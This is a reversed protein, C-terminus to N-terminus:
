APVERSVPAPPLIRRGQTRLEGEQELLNLTRRVRQLLVRHNSRNISTPFCIDVLDQDSMEPYDHPDQSRLWVHGGKRGRRPVPYHTQGPSHWIYSLNILGRWAPASRNGWFRLRDSVQPGNQSGQPLDVVVRLTDDLRQPGRPIGTINVIRRLHGSGTAPDIIPIRLDDLERVARELKEWYESPSPQRDPWFWQLFERLTVEYAVPRGTGREEQPVAFLSEIFMRQALPAARGGEHHGGGMEYIALPPAPLRREMGFGPLVQQGDPSHAAPLFIGKVIRQDDGHAQALRGPIIRRTTRTSPTVQYPRKTQWARILPPLPHMISQDRERAEDVLALTETLRIHIGPCDAYLTGDSGDPSMRLPVWQAPRETEDDLGLALGLRSNAEALDETPCEDHWLFAALEALTPFEDEPRLQLWVQRYADFTALDAELLDQMFRRPAERGVPSSGDLPVPETGHSIGVDRPRGEDNRSPLPEGDTRPPM